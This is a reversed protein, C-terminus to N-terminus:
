LQFFNTDVLEDLNFDVDKTNVEELEETEQKDIPVLVFLGEKDTHPVVSFVTGYRALEANSQGRCSVTLQKTLLNGGKVNFAESTGIIPRIRNNNDEYKVHLKMGPKVKMLEAAANTLRFKNDEVTLSPVDNSPLERSEVLRHQMGGTDTDITIEYVFKKIM